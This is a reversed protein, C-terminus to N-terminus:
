DAVGELETGSILWSTHNAHSQWVELIDGPMMVVWLPGGYFTPFQGLWTGLNYEASGKRVRLFASAGASNTLFFLRFDKVIATEEAPCTYVPVFTSAAAPRAAALQKTRVPM